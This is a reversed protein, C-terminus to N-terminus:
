SPPLLFGSRFYLKQTFIFIKIKLTQVIVDTFVAKLFFFLPLKSSLYQNVILM